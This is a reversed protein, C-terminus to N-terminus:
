NTAVIWGRAILTAKDLLGAASPAANTGALDLRKNNILSAVCDALVNDVNAQVLLCNDFDIKVL